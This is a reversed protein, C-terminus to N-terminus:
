LRKRKKLTESIKKKTEESLCKGKNWPEVGLRAESMKKKTEKSVPKGYNPSNKGSNKDSMEKKWEETHSSGKAHKNGIMLEKMKEQHEENQWLQLSRQSQDEKIEPHDIWWQKIKAITEPSPTGYVGGGSALNYGKDKNRSDYQEILQTETYDADEQTRCTAIIEFEFKDIGYKAMARHIYQQSKDPHTAYYQHQKWRRKDDKTQGIYVKNKETHFISYLYHM